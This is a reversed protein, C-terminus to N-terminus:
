DGAIRDVLRDLVRTAVPHQGYTEGLPFTTTCVRGDGVARTVLPSGRNAIWGEVYEVHIDDQDTDLGTALANPYLGEFAWDLRNSGTLDSIIPSDHAYLASCLNWNEGAPLERYQFLDDTPAPEHAPPVLL